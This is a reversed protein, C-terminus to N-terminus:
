QIVAIQRMEDDNIEGKRNRLAVVLERGREKLQVLPLGHDSPYNMDIDGNSLKELKLSVQQFQM